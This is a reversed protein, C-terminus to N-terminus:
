SPNGPRQGALPNGQSSLPGIEDVEEEEARGEQYAEQSADLM